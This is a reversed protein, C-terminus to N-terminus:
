VCIKMPLAPRSHLQADTAPLAPAEEAEPATIEADFGQLLLLRESLSEAIADLEGTATDTTSTLVLLHDLLQLRQSQRHRQISWAGFMLMLAAATSIASRWIFAIIRTRHNVHRMAAARIARRLGDSPERDLAAHVSPALATAVADLEAAEGPQYRRTTKM